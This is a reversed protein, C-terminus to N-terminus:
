LTEQVQKEGLCSYQAVCTHILIPSVPVLTELKGLKIKGPVITLHQLPSDLACFFDNDLTAVFNLPLQGVDKDVLPSPVYENVLFMGLM